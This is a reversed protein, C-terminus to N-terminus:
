GSAVRRGAEVTLPEFPPRDLREEAIARRRVLTQTQTTPEALHLSQEVAAPGERVADADVDCGLCDGPSTLGRRGFTELRRDFVPDAVQINVLELRLADIEHPRVACEMMERAELLDQLLRVAGQARTAQQDSVLVDARWVLLQAVPVALEHVGRHV